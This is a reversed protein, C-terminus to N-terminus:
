DELLLERLKETAWRGDYEIGREDLMAKVRDRESPEDTEPEDATSPEDVPQENAEPADTEVEGIVHAKGLEILRDALGYLAPHDEAYDKPPILRKGTQYSRYFETVRILRTM